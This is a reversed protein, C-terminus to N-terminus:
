INNVKYKIDEFFSRLAEYPKQGVHPMMFTAGEYCYYSGFYPKCLGNLRIELPEKLENNPNEVM